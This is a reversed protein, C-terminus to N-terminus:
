NKAKEAGPRAMISNFMAESSPPERTYGEIPFPSRLWKEKFQKAPAGAMGSDSLFSDLDAETMAWGTELTLRYTETNHRGTM